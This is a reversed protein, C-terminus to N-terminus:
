EQTDNIEGEQYVAKIVDGLSLNGAEVSYTWENKKKKKLSYVFSLLINELISLDYFLGGYFETAALLNVNEQESNQADELVKRQESVMNYVISHLFKFVVVPDFAIRSNKKFLNEEDLPEAMDENIKRITQQFASSLSDDLIVVEVGNKRIVVQTKGQKKKKSVIQAM